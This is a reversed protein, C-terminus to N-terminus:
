IYRMPIRDLVSARASAYICCYYYYRLLLLLLTCRLLLSSISPIACTQRRRRHLRRKFRHDCRCTPRIVIGRGGGIAYVIIRSIAIHAPLYAHSTNRRAHWAAATERSLRAHAPPRAALPHPIRRRHDRRPWRALTPPLLSGLSDAAAAAAKWYTVSARADRCSRSARSEAAATAAAAAASAAPVYRRSPCHSHRNIRNNHNKKIKKKKKKPKPEKYYSKGM